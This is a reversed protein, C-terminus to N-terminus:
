KIKMLQAILKERDDAGYYEIEIKGRRRGDKINVKRGMATGLQECMIQAYDIRSRDEATEGTSKPASLLKKVLAEAARVSLDKEMIQNATSIQIEADELPILARAHGPSLM